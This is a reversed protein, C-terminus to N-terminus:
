HVAPVQRVKDPQGGESTEHGDRDSPQRKQRTLTFCHCLPALTLHQEILIDPVAQAQEQVVPSVLGLGEALALM